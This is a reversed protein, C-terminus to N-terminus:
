GMLEGHRYWGEVREGASDVIGDGECGVRLLSLSAVISGVISKALRVSSCDDM